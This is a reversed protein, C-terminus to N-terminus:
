HSMEVRNNLYRSQRHEVSRLLEKRAAGYSPCKDTVMVRPVYQLGKLLKRFFRLAAKKNRRAQLLVDLTNGEQDVTRWFYHIVGKSRVLVEDLHWKDGPKARRRKLRKAYVPGFRDNWARISEYTVEIGRAALIAEVDRLSLSFVHYLWVAHAIVESPTQDRTKM